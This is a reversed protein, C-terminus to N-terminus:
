IVSEWLSAIERELTDVRGALQEMREAMTPLPSGGAVPGGAAGPLRVFRQLRERLEPFRPLNMELRLEGIIEVVKAAVVPGAAGRWGARKALKAPPTTPNWGDRYLNAADAQSDVRFPFPLFVGEGSVAGHDVVVVRFVDGGAFEMELTHPIYPSGDLSVRLGRAVQVLKRFGRWRHGGGPEIEVVPARAGAEMRWGEGEVIETRAVPHLAPKGEVMRLNDNTRTRTKM